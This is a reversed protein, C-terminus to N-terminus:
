PTTTGTNLTSLVGLSNVVPTEGGPASLTVTAGFNSYYSRAGIQNTFAVTIVGNFNAPRFNATDMNSNGAAVVITVGAAIMDEIANQYTLGCSGGGGLSMNVVNEPNLNAPEGPVTFGAAWRMGDAIDSLAGGCKGRVRVPVISADRAIGAVGIGNNTTAAVTGSVHTGDWNSNRPRNPCWTKSALVWDGPDRADGDRGDGDNAATAYSIFDHQPLINAM